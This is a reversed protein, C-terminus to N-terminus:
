LANWILCNCILLTTNAIWANRPFLSFGCDGLQEPREEEQWYALCWCVGLGLSAGNDTQNGALAEWVKPFPQSCSHLLVCALVGLPCKNCSFFIWLDGSFTEFKKKFPRLTEPQPQGPRVLNPLPMSCPQSGEPPGPFDTLRVCFSVPDHVRLAPASLINQAETM